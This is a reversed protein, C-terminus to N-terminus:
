SNSLSEIHESKWEYVKRVLWAIDKTTNDVETKALLMRRNIAWSILNWIRPNVDKNESDKHKKEQIKSWEQLWTWIPWWRKLMHGLM